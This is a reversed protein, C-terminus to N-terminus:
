IEGLERHKLELYVNIILILNLYSAAVVTLLLTILLPFNFNIKTTYSILYGNSNCIYM